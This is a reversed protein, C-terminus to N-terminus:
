GASRRLHSRKIERGLIDSENGSVDRARILVITSKGKGLKFTFLFTTSGTSPATL